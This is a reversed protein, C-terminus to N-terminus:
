NFCHGPNPCNVKAYTRRAVGVGGDLAVEGKSTVLAQFLWTFHNSLSAIPGVWCCKVLM